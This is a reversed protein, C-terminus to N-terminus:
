LYFRLGLSTDFRRMGYFDYKETSYKGGEPENMRMTFIDVQLGLGVKKSLMYEVGLQSLAGIYSHSESYKYEITTVSESYNAYGIGFSAELRWNDNLMYSYLVSPGIYHIKMDFGEDFSADFCMYNLGVGFGSKWIHQYDATLVSGSKSKYIRGATEVDSIIWAPGVGAKFINQPGKYTPEYLLKQGKVRALIEADNREELEQLATKSSIKIMSDPLVYMTAWIRHCSSALDPNKHRDIQLANGGCEATKKVALAIVNPFLCKYTATMGGDTVKVRGIARAEEPMTKDEGYVMVSDASRSPLKESTEATVKPLTSCGVLAATAITVWFSKVLNMKTHM